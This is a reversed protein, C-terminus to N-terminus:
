LTKAYNTLFEKLNFADNKLEFDIGMGNGFSYPRFKGKANDFAWTILRQYLDDYLRKGLKFGGTQLTLPRNVSISCRWGFRTKFYHKIKINNFKIKKM